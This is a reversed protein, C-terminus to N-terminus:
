TWDLIATGFPRFDIIKNNKRSNCRSCLPQINSIYNTGGKSVPVVHDITLKIGTAGCWLCTNQFKNCLNTWELLNFTGEITEFLKRRARSSKTVQEPHRKHYEKVYESQKGPNKILWNKFNIRRREKNNKQWESSIKNIREKNKARYEAQQAKYKSTQKYARSTALYHDKHKHRHRKIQENRKKPNRKVWDYTREYNEERHFKNYRANAEHRSNLCHECYKKSRSFVIERKFCAVCMGNKLAEAAMVVRKEKYEKRSNSNRQKLHSKQCKDFCVECHKKSREYFVPRKKCRSCLESM